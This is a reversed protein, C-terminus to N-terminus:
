GNPDYERLKYNADVAKFFAPSDEGGEDANLKDAQAKAEDQTLGDCVLKDDITERDFNDVKVVRWTRDINTEVSNLWKEDEATKLEETARGAVIDLVSLNNEERALIIPENTTPCTAWSEFVAAGILVPRQFPKQELGEHSDECRPCKALAIPKM